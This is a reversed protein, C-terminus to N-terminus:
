FCSLFFSLFCCVTKKIVDITCGKLEILIFLSIQLSHCKRCNGSCSGAVFSIILEMVDILFTIHFFIEKMLLSRLNKEM